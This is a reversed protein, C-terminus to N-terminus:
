YIHVHVHVIYFYVIITIHVNFYITITIYVIYLCTNYLKSVVLYKKIEINEINMGKTKQNSWFIEDMMISSETKETKGFNCKGAETWNLENPSLKKLRGELSDTSMSM